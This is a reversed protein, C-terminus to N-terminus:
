WGDWANYSRNDEDSNEADREEVPPSHWSDYFYYYCESNHCEWMGGISCEVWVLMSGCSGCVKVKKKAM